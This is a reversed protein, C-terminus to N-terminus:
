GKYSGAVADSNICNTYWMKGRISLPTHFKEQMGALYKGISIPKGQSRGQM